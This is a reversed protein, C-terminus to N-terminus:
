RVFCVFIDYWSSGDSRVFTDCPRHHTRCNACTLGTGAFWRLRFVWRLMSSWGTPGKQQWVAAQLM